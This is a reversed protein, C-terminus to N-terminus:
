FQSSSRWTSIINVIKPYNKHIQKTKQTYYFFFHNHSFREFIQTKGRQSVLHVRLNSVIRKTKSGTQFQALRQDSPLEPGLSNGFFRPNLPSQAPVLRPRTKQVKIINIHPYIYTYAYQSMSTSTEQHNPGQDPASYLGPEFSREKM